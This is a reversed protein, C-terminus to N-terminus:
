SLRGVRPNDFLVSFGCPQEAATRCGGPWEYCVVSGMAGNVLGDETCVNSRLLMVGACIVVRMSAAISPLTQHLRM